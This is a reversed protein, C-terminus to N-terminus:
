SGQFISFRSNYWMECGAATVTVVTVNRMIVDSPFFIVIYKLLVFVISGMLDVVYGADSALSM